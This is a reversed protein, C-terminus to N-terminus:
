CSSRSRNLKETQEVRISEYKGTSAYWCEHQSTLTTDTSVDYIDKWLGDTGDVSSKELLAKRAM